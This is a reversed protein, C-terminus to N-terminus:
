PLFRIIKYLGELNRPNLYNKLWYLRTFVLIITYIINWSNAIFHSQTNFFGLLLTYSLDTAWFIGHFESNTSTEISASRHFVSSLIRCKMETRPWRTIEWINTRRATMRMEVMPRRADVDLPKARPVLCDCLWLTLLIFLRM